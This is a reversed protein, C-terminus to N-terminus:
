NYRVTITGVRVHGKSSSSLVGKEIGLAQRWSSASTAPAIDTVTDAAQLRVTVKKKGFCEPPLKVLHETYGPTADQSTQPNNWWACSRQKITCLQTFTTGNTSYLVNWHSPGFVTSASGLGHGWVIGFVLNSGSLGATSFEVDFYKGEQTEFDWWSQAMCLAAGAVLGKLNTTGHGNPTDEVPLFPNNYDNVFSTAADYTFLDGSGEDVNFSEEYDNWNWECITNSFKLGDLAIDEKAMPRIQYKGLNGWRVPAIEDAVVIGGLTGAGDPVCSYWVPDGYEDEKGARRWPAAANTLMYIVNGAIDSCLLPAVDWRPATTGLPNLEDQMSYGESANTYSGDKSMIEVDQLSVYTFIDADTLQALSRPKEPVTSGDDVLTIKDATLGELTYRVPNSIRTLTLGDLSVLVKSWRPVVNDAADKFKLCVGYSGDTSELYATRGSETRDFSFQGTQPSSCVNPSSPDSVIFGEALFNGHITGPVRGRLEQFSLMRDSAQTVKYAAAATHGDGDEFSVSIIASRKSGSTNETTTFSLGEEVLAMDKIWPSDASVTIGELSWINNQEAPILYKAANAYYEGSAASLTFVPDSATQVISIVAHTEVGAADTIYCVLDASRSKESGNADVTFEIHDDFFTCDGVWGQEDDNEPYVTRSKFDGISFQLNTTMPVSFSNSQRPLVVKSRELNIYPASVNGAQIVNIKETLEGRTVLIDVNRAIGYNASWSLVFDGLGEGSLKNISAWDVKSGLAVNWPGTSYVAIHTQGPTQAIKLTHSTVSLEDFIEYRKQCSTAGLSALVALAIYIKKCDM